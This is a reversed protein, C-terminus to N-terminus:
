TDHNGATLAWYVNHEILTKTFNAYQLAYWGETKGDWAYGSVVDGTIVAFDPQELELVQKINAQNSVDKDYSEGFHIDTFQVMKFKGTSNFKLVHDSAGKIVGVLTVLLLISRRM